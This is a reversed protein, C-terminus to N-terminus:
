SPAPTDDRALDAGGPSVAPGSSAVAREALPLEAAEFYVLPRVPPPAGSITFSRLLLPARQADGYLTALTTGSTVADGLRVALEVGASSGGAEVLDRALEGLAVTDIAAVYGSRNARAPTRTRHTELRGLAGPRAGQAVLMAEFVEYARGSALADALARRAVVADAASGDRQAPCADAPSEARRAPGANGAADGRSVAFLAVGLRECLSGLRPDRRTGRLFDRAERLELGTGIARGLPENMDSVIAIARRGFGRTLAVLMAGLERAADPERVFAGAGCKVDYVIGRAGGAIKKSVISAAILGPSPVTATRDRLAYFRKDAPVLRSSQAAIACGVDAVIASFREPSLDTRVGALAELKDLTGGTHGLARGSLKAVPVGCAAVLPVVVLSATDAVGGSSHKDVTRPDLDDRIEGSAVFAETLERTEGPTMGRLVCAMLLAAIQAEDITGALFADVIAQWAGAALAGGDRKSAIARRMEAENVRGPIRAHPLSARPEHRRMRNHIRVDM